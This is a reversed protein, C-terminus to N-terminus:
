ELRWTINDIVRVYYTALTHAWPTGMINSVPRQHPEFVFTTRGGLGCNHIMFITQKLDYSLIPTKIQIDYSTLTFIWTCITVHNLELRWNIDDIVPVYYTALAHAWPTGMFNSVPWQCPELRVVTTGNPGCNCIVFITWKLNWFLLKSKFTM